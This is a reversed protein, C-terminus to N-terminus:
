RDHHNFEGVFYETAPRCCRYPNGHLKNRASERVHYNKVSKKLYYHFIFFQPIAESQRKTPVAWGVIALVPVDRYGHYNMFDASRLSVLNMMGSEDNMM